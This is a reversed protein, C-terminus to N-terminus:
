APYQRLGQVHFLKWQYHGFGVEGAWLGFNIGGMQRGFFEPAAVLTQGLLDFGGGGRDDCGQADFLAAVERFEPIPIIRKNFGHFQKVLRRSLLSLSPSLIKGVGPRPFSILSRVTGVVAHCRDPIVNRGCGNDDKGIWMLPM